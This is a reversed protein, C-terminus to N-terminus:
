ECDHSEFFGNISEMFCSEETIFGFGKLRYRKREDEIEFRAKDIGRISAFALVARVLGDYYLEIESELEAVVLTDRDLDCTIHGLIEGKDKLEFLIRDTVDPNRLITIM